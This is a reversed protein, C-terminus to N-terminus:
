SRKVHTLPMTERLHRLDRLRICCAADNRLSLCTTQPKPQKPTKPNQPKDAYIQSIQPLCQYKKPLQNLVRIHKNERLYRLNRLPICCPQIIECLFVSQKLNLSNQRKPTQRRNDAPSM